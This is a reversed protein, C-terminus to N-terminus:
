TRLPEDAFSMSTAGVPSEPPTYYISLSVVEVDGDVAPQEISVFPETSNYAEYAM